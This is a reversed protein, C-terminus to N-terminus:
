ENIKGDRWKIETEHGEFGDMWMQNLIERRKRKKEKEESNRAPRRKRDSLIRNCFYASAYEPLFNLFRRVSSIFHIVSKRLEGLGRNRNVQFNFFFFRLVLSDLGLWCVCGLSHFVFLFFFVFGIVFPMKISNYHEGIGCIWSFQIICVCPVRLFFWNCFIGFCVHVMPLNEVTVIKREYIERTKNKKERLVSLLCM